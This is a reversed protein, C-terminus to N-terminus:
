DEQTIRDLAADKFHRLLPRTSVVYRRHTRPHSKHQQESWNLFERIAISFAPAPKKELIGVEGKALATRCAAEMQRAVRPNGQKTSEQVHTSNFWFHYWYIRGRKFIAM